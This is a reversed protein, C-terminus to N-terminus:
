KIFNGLTVFLEDFVNGWPGSICNMEDLFQELAEPVELASDAIAEANTVVEEFFTRSEM